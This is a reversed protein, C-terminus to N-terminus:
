RGRRREAVYRGPEWGHVEVSPVPRLLRRDPGHDTAALQCPRVVPALSERRLDREHPAEGGAPRVDELARVIEHPCPVVEVVVDGLEHLLHEPGERAVEQPERM